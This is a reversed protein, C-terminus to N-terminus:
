ADGQEEGAFLAAVQAGTLRPRAGEFAYGEPKEDIFIEQNLSLGAFNEFLGAAPMRFGQHPGPATIRYWIPSGCTGCFAREAWESSAYILTAEAGEWAIEGACEMAFMPGSTLRRCMGCHCVDLKRPTATVRVAGCQCRGTQPEAASAGDSAKVDTM